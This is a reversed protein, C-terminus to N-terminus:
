RSAGEPCILSAGKGEWFKMVQEVRSYQADILINSVSQRSHNRKKAIETQNRGSLYASIVERQPLTWRDEFADSLELILDITADPKPLGTVIMTLRKADKGRFRNIADRSNHFATGDMQYSISGGVALEGIGIGARFLPDAAGCVASLLNRFALIFRYAFAPQRLVFQFEDGQIVSFSFYDAGADRIVECTEGFAARVRQEMERRQAVSYKRSGILDCTVVAIM